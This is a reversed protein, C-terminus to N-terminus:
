TLVISPTASPEIIKLYNIYIIKCTRAFLLRHLLNLQFSDLLQKTVPTCAVNCARLKINSRVNFDISEKLKTFVV